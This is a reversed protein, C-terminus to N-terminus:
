KVPMGTTIQQNGLLNGAWSGTSQLAVEGRTLLKTDSTDWAYNRQSFYFNLSGHQAQCDKNLFHRFLTYELTILLVMQLGFWDSRQMRSLLRFFRGDKLERRVETFKHFLLFYGGPRHTHLKSTEKATPEGEKAM